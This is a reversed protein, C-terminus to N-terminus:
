VQSRTSPGLKWFNTMTEWYCWFRWSLMPESKRTKDKVLKDVSSETIIKGFCGLCHGMSGQVFCIRACGVRTTNWASPQGWFVVTRYPEIKSYSRIFLKSNPIIGDMDQSRCNNEKPYLDIPVFGYAVICFLNGILLAGSCPETFVGSKRFLCDRSTIKSNLSIQLHQM